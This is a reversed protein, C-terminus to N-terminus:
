RIVGSATGAALRASFEAATKAIEDRVEARVQDEQRDMASWGFRGPSGYQNLKRVLAVGQPTRAQRAFEGLAGAPNRHVLRVIADTDSRQGGGVKVTVRKQGLLYKQAMGSPRGKRDTWSGIVSTRSEMETRVPEVARKMRSNLKGLLERDFGYLEQRLARFSAPDVWMSVDTM